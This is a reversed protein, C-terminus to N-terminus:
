EEANELSFHENYSKNIRKVFEKFISKNSIPTIVEGDVIQDAVEQKERLLDRMYTDITDDCIMYYIQVQAKQGIRHTRDEAQEHNAPVWDMDLFIVTDIKHQLGDIGMGAARISFCGVKATGDTLRNISDQRLNKNMEGTLLAAADGYKEVIQKLPKLYCSFILISRDNDLYEDIIEMVRPLKKEILFSQLKPMTAVSPRGAQRWMGLVERLLQTYQKREEKTLDVYLDNRQKDPLETLVESKRRRIVLDKTREHLDRLNKAPEGRWGGYREVFHYFNNFRGKDLYNLLSFAEIPRSMVPTGTLFIV